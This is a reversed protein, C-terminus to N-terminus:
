VFKTSGLTRFHEKTDSQAFPVRIHRPSVCIYPKNRGATLSRFFFECFHIQDWPGGM